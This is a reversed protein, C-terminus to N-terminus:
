QMEQISLNSAAGSAICNIASTSLSYENMNWVAGAELTIGTNLVATAGAACSITKNSTNALVSGKRSANAALVQASAVGVSASTPANFTLATKTSVVSDNSVTVRPIGAGSAGTGTVVASGAITTLDHKLNQAATFQMTATQGTTLTAPTTTFIGGVPVPNATAAVANAVNGGVALLGAVGGTVTNTGAIQAANVSQNATLAGITAAGAALAVQGTSNSALTVRMTGADVTGNNVSTATGSVQATNVSQNATLAGITAAGAALAVQGTSNSALTIRQTGADVTGNNVSTATGAISDVSTPLTTTVTATGVQQITVPNQASVSATLLLTIGVLALCKMM